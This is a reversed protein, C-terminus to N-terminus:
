IELHAAILLFTVCCGMELVQEADDSGSAGDGKCRKAESPGNYVSLEHLKRSKDKFIPLHFRAKQLLYKTAELSM